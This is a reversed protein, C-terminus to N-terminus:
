LKVIVLKAYPGLPAIARYEDVTIRKNQYDFRGDSGIIAMDPLVYRSIVERIDAGTSAVEELVLTKMEKNPEHGFLEIWTEKSTTM